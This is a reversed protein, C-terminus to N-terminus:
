NSVHLLLKVIEIEGVTCALHLPFARNKQNPQNVDAGLEVLHRVIEKDGSEVALLLPTNSDIDAEKLMQKIEDKGYMQKAAYTLMDVLRFSGVACAKHLATQKKEGSSRINAGNELLIKAVTVMGYTCALHLPTLLQEDKIEIDIDRCLLLEKAADDNGRMAAYHLPSLGYKDKENVRAGKFSLYEVVTDIRGGHGDSGLFNNKGGDLNAIAFFTLNGVVM